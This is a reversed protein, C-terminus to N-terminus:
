LGTLRIADLEAATFLGASFLKLFEESVSSDFVMLDDSNVTVTVGSDFLARIPHASISPVRGLRVNSSPCVNLVTKRRSLFEMVRPDSASAIGHQVADLHLVEVSKRVWEADRLEGAHAKLCLGNEEALRYFPVYEDLSGVREDGYLDISRFFGTALAAPVFQELMSLSVGRAMGLEPRIEIASGGPEEALVLDLVHQFDAVMAGADGSYFKLFSSDLSTELITVGDSIAERVTEAFFFRLYVLFERVPLNRYPVALDELIYKDFDKFDAFVEPPEPLPTKSWAKYSSLRGGLCGHSHLDTKPIRRLGALDGREIAARFMESDNSKM